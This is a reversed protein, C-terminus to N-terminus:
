SESSRKWPGIKALWELQRASTGPSRWIVSSMIRRITSRSPTIPATISAQINCGLQSRPTVVLSFTVSAFRDGIVDVVDALDGAVGVVGRDPGIEVAAVTDLLARVVEVGDDVDLLDGIQEAGTAIRFVVDCLDHM